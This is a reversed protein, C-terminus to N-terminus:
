FYKYHWHQTWSLRYKMRNITNSPKVQLTIQSRGQLDLGLRLPSQGKIPPPVLLFISAATLALILGLIQESLLRPPM